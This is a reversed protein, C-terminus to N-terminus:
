APRNYFGSVVVFGAAGPIGRVYVTTGAPLVARQNNPMAGNQFYVERALGTPIFMHIDTGNFSIEVDVDCDNLIHIYFLAHDFVDGVPQWINADLATSGFSRVPIPAVVDKVNM